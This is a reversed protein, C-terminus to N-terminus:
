IYLKPKSSGQSHKEKPLHDASGEASETKKKTKKKKKKLPKEDSEKLGDKKDAEEKPGDGSSADDASFDKIGRYLKWLAPINKVMPGYQSIMPGFQQAANLVQQTNSLFSTINGPNLLSGITSAGAAGAAPSREFGSAAGASDGRSFQQLINGQAQGQGNNRDGKKLLKSLLGGGRGKRPGGGGGNRPRGGIGQMNMPPRGQQGMFGNMPPGMQFPSPQANGMGFPNQNRMERQQGFPRRGMGRPMMGFPSGQQQNQRRMRLRPPM